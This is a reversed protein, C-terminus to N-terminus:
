YVHEATVFRLLDLRPIVCSVGALESVMDINLTLGMM